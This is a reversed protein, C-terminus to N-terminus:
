ILGQSKLENVIYDIQYSKLINGPHPKHIRIIYKTSSNVFARRSGTTKGSKYEKYGFHRLIKGLEGFSFDKPKSQLKNILKKIKSM